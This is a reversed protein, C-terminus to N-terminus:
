GFEVLLLLNEKKQQALLCPTGAGPARRGGGKHTPFVALLGSVASALSDSGLHNLGALEAPQCAMVSPDLSVTFTQLEPGPILILAVM